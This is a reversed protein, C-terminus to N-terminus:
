ASGTTAPPSVDEHPLKLLGGPSAPPAPESVSAGPMHKISLINSCEFLAHDGLGTPAM